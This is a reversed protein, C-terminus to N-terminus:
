DDAVCMAVAARVTPYMHDEGIRDVLRTAHLRAVVPSKARAIVFTIGSRRLEDILSELAAIGSADIENVGEADFVLWRTETRAGTIAEQIRASVYTANNYILHDDLRYVVVGPTVVASPHMTVDTYRGVKDSWGLVADHPKASRRVVDVISLGAALLLAQLVGIVLVGTTTVAAIVVESRGARALARWAGADFLGIAAAVIVAGLCVTPLEAMPGTLFLLVVTVVAAAIVGVLQTKGGMQDNVATRASSAGVPFAQTVGAALNATGLALLEQNANIHQGHRGAYSRGTLIASAFAVFFIGIAPAVLHAVDRWGVGPWDLAPLGRPIPGVVAVGHSELDFAYSAIIAAVVLVLPGPVKRAFRRLLLLIAISVLGLAVTLRHVEGAETVVEAVQPLPERNSISLGLLKGLQGILLVIAVGHVYGVLVARSFYDALWGLRILRALLFAAGVLVTLMGALAAYRGAQGAALPAIAIAVLLSLSGEPGVSLQRSSGLAAYAVAPLLLAYLGAVPSLGALQAYAMGAPIALAAITIGAVIDPRLRRQPYEPVEKAVPFVRRLRPQRNRPQFPSADDPDAPVDGEYCVPLVSSAGIEPKYRVPTDCNRSAVRRTQFMNGSGTAFEASAVLALRTASERNGGSCAGRM